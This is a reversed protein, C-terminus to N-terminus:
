GMLEAFLAARDKKPLRKIAAVIDAKSKLKEASILVGDKDRVVYGAEEGLHRYIGFSRADDHGLLEMAQGEPMNASLQTAKTHRLHHPSAHKVGANRISRVFAQYITQGSIPSSPERPAQFVWGAKPWEFSRWDFTVPDVAVREGVTEAPTLMEALAALVTADLYTFREKYAGRAAKTREFHVSPLTNGDAPWKIMEWRLKAAEGRRAGTGRLFEIAGRVTPALRGLEIRVRALEDLTLARAKSKTGDGVITLDAWPRALAMGYHEAHHKWTCSFTNLLRRKTKAKAKGDSWHGLLRAFHQPGLAQVPLRLMEDIDQHDRALRVMSRIQSKDHDASARPVIAFPLRAHAAAEATIDKVRRKREIIEKIETLLSPLQDPTYPRLDLAEVQYRLLWELLTGEADQIGGDRQPTKRRHRDKLAFANANALANERRLPHSPALGQKDAERKEVFPYREYAATRKDGEDMIRMRYRYSRGHLEVGTQKTERAM